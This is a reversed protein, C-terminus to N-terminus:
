RGAKRKRATRVKARNGCVKMDCWRRSNNKTEDYFLWGCEHGACQKIRKQDQQVLMEVAAQAIPGLISYPTNEWAWNCRRRGPSLRASKLMRAYHSSIEALRDARARRGGAISAAVEFILNRLRTADRLLSLPLRKGRLRGAEIASLVGAHHAWEVVNLPIRLHEQHTPGGRGSATNAFNLALHGAVLHLTGARSINDPLPM